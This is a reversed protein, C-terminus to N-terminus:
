KKSDAATCECLIRNNHKAEDREKVVCLLGNYLIQVVDDHLIAVVIVLAGVTRKPPLDGALM